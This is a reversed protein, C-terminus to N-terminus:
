MKTAQRDTVLVSCFFFVGALMTSLMVFGLVPGNDLPWDCDHMSALTVPVLHVVGATFCAFDVVPQLPSFFRGVVIRVLDLLTPRQYTTDNPEPRYSM